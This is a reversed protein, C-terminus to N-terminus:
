PRAAHSHDAIGAIAHLAHLLSARFMPGHTLGDFERYEVDLGPLADLRSALRAAADPPAAAIRALHTRVRPDSLDRHRTDRAREGGGLTVLVRAPRGANHASFRREPEGLLAGQAWWLSPSAAAWTEFLGTRAYLAHLVFLGGLSHGWLAQRGRDLPLRAALEPMAQREIVELLADAGGGM